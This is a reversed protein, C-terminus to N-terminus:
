KITSGLFSLPLLDSVKEIVYIKEGEGKLIIKIPHGASHEHELLVQRCIGCPSVPDLTPKNFNKITVAITKVRQDPHMSAAAALAVREACLGLSYSANEQNTGVVVKGNDLLLAAGVNFHSYPAYADPLIAHARNILERDEDSLEHSSNFVQVHTTIQM